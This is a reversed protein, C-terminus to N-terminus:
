PLLNSLYELVELVLPNPTFFFDFSTAVVVSCIIKLLSNLAGAKSANYHVMPAGPKEAAGSAIVIIKGYKRLKMHPVVAKCCLFIGKLNVAIVADWEEEPIDAISNPAAGKGADNVLIDVKKFKNIVQNVMDQVQNFNTVDCQVVLGDRGMKKIEEVTENAEKILVDAIVVSCGEEAFKLAIGKGIGRAGGTIIAVKDKLLM